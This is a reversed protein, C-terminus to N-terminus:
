FDRVDCDTPSFGAKALPLRLECRARMVYRRTVAAGFKYRVRGFVWLDVPFTGSTNERRFDEAGGDGVLVASRGEFEVPLVFSSKRGEYFAPLSAWGFRKGEYVAHAELWDYYIGVRKNPNRVSLNASLNFSLFRNGAPDASSLNFTRLSASAVSIQMKQPRYIIWLILVVLGIIVCSIIFARILVTLLRRPRNPNPPPAPYAYVPPGYYSGTLPPQQHNM